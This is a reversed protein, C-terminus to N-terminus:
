PRRGRSVAQFDRVVNAIGQLLVLVAAVPIALKVPWIPPNWPSGTTEGIKISDWAWAFGAWVLTGLYFVFVVLTIVDLWARVRPSLRAYVVDVAVHRRHLLAYGGGLLYAVATVYIMTENAWLTPATFVGRLLLEYVIVAVILLIQLGVLRGCWDNLRDVTHFFRDM